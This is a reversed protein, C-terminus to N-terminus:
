TIILRQWGEQRGRGLGSRSSSTQAATWGPTCARGAPSSKPDLHLTCDISGYLPGGDGRGRVWGM